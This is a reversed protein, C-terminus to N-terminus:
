RGTLPDLTDMWGRAKSAIIHALMEEVAVTTPTDDGETMFPQDNLALRAQLRAAKQLWTPVDDPDFQGKENPDAAFGASYSARLYQCSLDLGVVNVLGTELDAVYNSTTITTPLTTLAEFTNAFTLTPAGTLFGRTLRLARQPRGGFWLTSDIFFDNM